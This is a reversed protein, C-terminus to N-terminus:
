APGVRYIKACSIHAPFTVVSQLIVLLNSLSSPKFLAMVRRDFPMPQRDLVALHGLVKGDLDKLPMALYSVAGEEKLDPDGPYLEMVKDPVHLFRGEDFVEACPTGDIDMEYLKHQDLSHAARLNKLAKEVNTWNTNQTLIAGLITEFRSQGPWWGQRGFRDLMLNYIQMLKDYSM